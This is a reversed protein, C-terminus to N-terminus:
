QLDFGKRKCFIILNRMVIIHADSLALEIKIDKNNRKL